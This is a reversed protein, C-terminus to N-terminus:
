RQFLKKSKSLNQGSQTKFQQKMVDTAFFKDKRLVQSLFIHIAM